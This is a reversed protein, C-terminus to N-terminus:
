YSRYTSRQARVSRIMLSEKLKDMQEESITRPNNSLKKLEEIKRFIIEM